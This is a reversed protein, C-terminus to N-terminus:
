LLVIRSDLWMSRRLMTLQRRLSSPSEPMADVHSNGIATILLQGDVEVLQGLRKMTMIRHEAEEPTEYKWRVRRILEANDPLDGLDRAQERLDQEKSDDM